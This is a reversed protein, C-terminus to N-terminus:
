YVKSTSISYRYSSHDQYQPKWIIWGTYVPMLWMMKLQSKTLVEYLRAYELLDKLLDEISINKEAVYSKFTFYIKDMSPTSQRMVSLYDRVFLSLGNNNNNDSGTCAEIKSWYKKYFAEQYEPKQGM